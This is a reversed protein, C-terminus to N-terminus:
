PVRVVRFYQALGGANTSWTPQASLAVLNSAAVNWATLNTSAEIRFKRGVLAPWKLTASGNTVALSVRLVPDPYNFVMVVPLHDSAVISDNSNLNPPLPPPLQDTRFVQSAVINASLVGAPMVYDFRADLTGQISHTFRLATFPNLPTSLTLGTPASVLRQIPQHGQSMPIGIDENLDGTMVYPRAGNTPVFVTAFFNSVASCEAARRDQSDPDPGSKLHTTFVHLPETAGPVFIEAEFLDRTFTGQYGFNTLSAAALWSQTRTFPYRSIFGSRITGDTNSSVALSHAPFFAKMWNTMEYRLGNPIENLAIIDPNLYRLQRAIAQVQPANTTWDSAFNGKVNYHVLTLTGSSSPGIVTLTATASNTAGAANSVNVRYPGAQAPTVGGLLLNTATAGPLNTGHFQWQYSLPATGTATVTFNAVGGEVVATNAPPQTIVPPNTIPVQFVEAFSTGIRLDDLALAGIGTDQRLAFSNIAAAAAIDTATISTSAESSPDVWLTATANSVVYRLYIRHQANTDLNAAAALVPVNSINALGIRYQGAGAGSTLAFVKARQITGAGKFHAFYQGGVAPLGSFNVTFSAYLATTTNAPFSQGLSANVDETEPVRLDVSGSLVEMQGATGSHTTWGGASVTVLAGDPYSFPEQVLLAARAAVVWLWVLM